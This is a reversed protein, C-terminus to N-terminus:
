IFDKKSKNDKLRHRLIQKPIDKLSLSLFGIHSVDEEISISLFIKVLSMSENNPKIIQHGYLIDLGNFVSLQIGFSSQIIRISGETCM